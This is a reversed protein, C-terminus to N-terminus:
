EGYSYNYTLKVRRITISPTGTGSAKQLQVFPQVTTTTAAASMDFTTGSAVRNNEVRFRVDGSGQRFDLVYRKYDASTLTTSTAVDDNNTTNDDTEAVVATLSASGEMRFWASTTVTDATDNQASAVGWVLTTVSDIGSVKAVFEVEVLDRLPFALVDNFYLTVIEAESTSALTLVAGDATVTYTPTGSSSTDKITWGNFGPTTTFSQARRFDDTITETGSTAGLLSACLVLLKVFNM